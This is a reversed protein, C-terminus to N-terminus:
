FYMLNLIIVNRKNFSNTDQFDILSISIKNLIKYNLNCFHLTKENM